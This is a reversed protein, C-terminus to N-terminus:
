APTEIRVCVEGGLYRKKDAFSANMRKRTLFSVASKVTEEQEM